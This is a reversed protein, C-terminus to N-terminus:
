GQANARREMAARAAADFADQVDQTDRAWEQPENDMWWNAVQAVTM